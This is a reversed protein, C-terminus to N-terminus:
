VKEFIDKEIDYKYTPIKHRKFMRCNALDDDIALVPECDMLLTRIMDQKVEDSPRYDCDERMLLKNNGEVKVRGESFDAIQKKTVERNCGRDERSTLFFVPFFFGLTSILDIISKNPKALHSLSHFKDWLSRAEDKNEETVQPARKLWERSDTYCNDLDVILIKQMNEGRM